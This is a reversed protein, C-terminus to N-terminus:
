DEHSMRRAQLQAADLTTARITEKITPLASATISLKQIGLGVLAVAAQPEAALEGCVSLELDCARATDAILRIMRLVAPDDHRYRQVLESEGRDAALTYQTLDNTGISCFRIAPALLDLTIAAAPTEVMIGVPADARHALKDARLSEAAAAIQGIAWSIDDPTAVMPLMIRVDGVSAARLLARLQVQFLERFRMAFRIGRWGLFPNAEHLQPLYPIPKDGGIDLTRIVLPRGAMVQAVEAYAAVQEDESPPASRDLFLFETRFLGIGEAGRELAPQAEDPQGINAWLEIRRGDGTVAPLDRLEARRLETARQERQRELYARREEASPAVILLGEDAALLAQAGDPVDLLADGLGVVAPIGLARALIAVHGTATGRATAFGAIGKHRLSATQAPTLDRAVVISAPPVDLEASVGNLMAGIQQGVAGVDAARERLYDDDLESLLAAMADTARQLAVALPLREQEVLRAVESALTPDAALLAQAEFIAAEDARGEAQLEAALRQLQASVQEQAAAFRALPEAEDASARQPEPEPLRAVVGLAIGPAGAIGQVRTM